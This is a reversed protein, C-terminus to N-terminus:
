AREGRGKLDTGDLIMGRSGHASVVAAKAAAWLRKTSHLEDGAVTSAHLTSTKPQEGAAQKGKKELGCYVRLATMGVPLGNEALCAAIEKWTRGATRATAIEKHLARIMASKSNKAPPSNKALVLLSEALTKVDVQKGM